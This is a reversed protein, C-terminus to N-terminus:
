IINILGKAEGHSPTEINVYRYKLASAGTFPLTLPKIINKM